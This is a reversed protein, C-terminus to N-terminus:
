DCELLADLQNEDLKLPRGERHDDEVEGDDEFKERWRKVGKVSAGIIPAVEKPKFGVQTLVVSAYRQLPEMRSQM